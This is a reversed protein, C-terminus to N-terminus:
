MVKGSSTIPAIEITPGGSKDSKDSMHREKKLREGPKRVGGCWFRCRIKVAVV